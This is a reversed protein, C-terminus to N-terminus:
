RLALGLALIAPFVAYAVMEATLTWSPQNRAFTPEPHGRRAVMFSSQLPGGWSCWDPLPAGWYGQRVVAWHVLPVALLQLIVNVPWLRAFRRWM